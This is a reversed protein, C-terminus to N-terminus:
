EQEGEDEDESPKPPSYDIGCSRCVMEDDWDCQRKCGTM